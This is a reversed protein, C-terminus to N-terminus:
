EEVGYEDRACDSCVNEGTGVDIWDGTECWWGCTHCEFTVGDITSSLLDEEPMSLDYFDLDHNYCAEEISKCTGLLDYAIDRCIEYTLM